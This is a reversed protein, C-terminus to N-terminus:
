ECLGGQVGDRVGTGLPLLEEKGGRGAAVGGPMGPAAGVKGGSNEQRTTQGPAPCCWMGLDSPETIPRVDPSGTGGEMVERLIDQSHPGSWGRVCKVILKGLEVFDRDCNKLANKTKVVHFLM